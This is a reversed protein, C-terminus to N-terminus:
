EWSFTPSSVGEVIKWIKNILFDFGVFSAQQKLQAPTLATAYNGACPTGGSYTCQLSSDYYVNSTTAAGNGSIVDTFSAGGASITASVYCNSITTGGQFIIGSVGNGTVSISGTSKCNKLTIGALTQSFLGASFGSANLTGSWRVEDVTVGVGLARGCIGGVFGGGTLKTESISRVMLSQAFNGCIGGSYSGSAGITGSVRVGIVVSSFNIVSALAGKTGTTYSLNVNELIMNSTVGSTINNFLGREVGSNSFNSLKFGNGEYVGYLTGVGATLIMGTLDIDATQVIYTTDSIDANLISTLTSLDGVAVLNHTAWAQYLKTSLTSTGLQSISITKAGQVTTGEYNWLYPSTTGGWYIEQSWTGNTNCGVTLSTNLGSGSLAISGLSPDCLGTLNWVTSAGNTSRFMRDSISANPSSNGTFSLRFLNWDKKTAYAFDQWNGEADKAVVCLSYAYTDKLAIEDSIKTAIPREASYGAEDACGKSTAVLKYKYFEGGSVSVDLKTTANYGSPANNIVAVPAKVEFSLGSNAATIVTVGPTATACAYYTGNALPKLTQSLETVKAYSQVPNSCSSDTASIKLTYSTARISKGWSLTPQANKYVAEASILFGQDKKIFALKGECSLLFMCAAGATIILSFDKSKGM